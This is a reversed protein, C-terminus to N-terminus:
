KLADLAAQQEAIIEETCVLSALLEADAAKREDPTMVPLTSGIGPIEIAQGIAEGGQVVYDALELVGPAIEVGQIEASDLNVADVYSKTTNIMTSAPDLEGNLYAAVMSAATVGERYWGDFGSAITIGMHVDSVLFSYVPTEVAANIIAPIGATSATSPLLGIAEVGKDVLSKTAPGLESPSSYTAIDYEWGFNEAIQGISGLMYQATPDGPDALLGFYNLDPNQLEYIPVYQSFDIHMATGTIYDPKICSSQGLGLRYPATVIAFFLAPPDDMDELASAAIMGVENSLTLLADAGQDLVDEVMISATPFDYGADRFLINIKEGHLDHGAVLTEREDALLFGYVELSDFIASETLDYAPSRGFSLVALTPTEDDALAAFPMLLALVFITLLTKTINM